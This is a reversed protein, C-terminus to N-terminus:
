GGAPRPGILPGDLAPHPAADWRGVTRVPSGELHVRLESGDSREVYVWEDAVPNASRHLNRDVLSLWVMWSPIARLHDQYAPPM